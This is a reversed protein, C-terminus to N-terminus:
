SDNRCGPFRLLVSSLCFFFFVVFGRQTAPWVFCWVAGLCLVCAFRSALGSSCPLARVKLLAVADILEATDRMEGSMVSTMAKATGLLPGAVNVFSAVNRDIWENGAAAGLAGPQSSRLWHM